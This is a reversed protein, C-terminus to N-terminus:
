VNHTIHVYQPMTLSGRPGANLSSFQFFVSGVLFQLWVVPPLRTVVVVSLIWHTWHAYLVYLVSKVNVKLVSNCNLADLSQRRGIMALWMMEEPRLGRWPFEGSVLEYLLTRCCWHVDSLWDYCAENTHQLLTPWQRWWLTVLLWIVNRGLKIVGVTAM